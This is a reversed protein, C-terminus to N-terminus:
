STWIFLSYLLAVLAWDPLRELHRVAGNGDTTRRSALLQRLFFEFSAMVALFVMFNVGHVVTFEWYASPRFVVLALGLLWSYAPSWYANLSTHFDGRICADTIDIYSIGDPNMTHRATWAQAAAMLLGTGRLAFILRSVHGNLASQQQSASEAKRPTPLPLPAPQNLM